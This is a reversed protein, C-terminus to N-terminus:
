FYRTSKRKQGVVSRSSHPALPRLKTIAQPIQRTTAEQKSTNPLPRCFITHDHDHPCYARTKKSNRTEATEPSPLVTTQFSRAGADGDVEMNELCYKKMSLCAQVVLPASRVTTRKSSLRRHTGVCTHDNEIVKEIMSHRLSILLLGVARRLTVEQWGM